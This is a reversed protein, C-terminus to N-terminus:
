VELCDTADVTVHEMSERAKVGWITDISRYLCYVTFLWLAWSKGQQTYWALFAGLAFFILFGAYGMVLFDRYTENSVIERFESTLVAWSGYIVLIVSWLVYATFISKIHSRNIKM